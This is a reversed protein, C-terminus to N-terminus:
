NRAGVSYEECPLGACHNKKQLTKLEAACPARTPRAAISAFTGKPSFLVGFIRSLSNDSVAPAPTPAVPSAM